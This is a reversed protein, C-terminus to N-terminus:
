TRQVQLVHLDPARPLAGTRPARGSTPAVASALHSGAQDTPADLPPATLVAPSLHGLMGCDGRDFPCSVKAGELTRGTVDTALTIGPPRAEGGHGPHGPTAEAPVGLCVFLVALLTAVASGLAMPRVIRATRRHRQGGM